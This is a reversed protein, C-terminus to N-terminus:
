QYVRKSLIVLWIFSEEFIAFIALATNASVSKSLRVPQWITARKIPSTSRSTMGMCVLAGSM